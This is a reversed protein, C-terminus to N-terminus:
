TIPAPRAPQVPESRHSWLGYGLIVFGLGYLMSAVPLSWDTISENAGVIFSVITGLFVLVAIIMLWAGGRPLTGARLIAIGFLLTALIKGLAQPAGFTSDLWKAGSGSAFGMLPLIAEYAVLVILLYFAV